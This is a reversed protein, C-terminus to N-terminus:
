SETAIRQREGLKYVYKLLSHKINDSLLSSMPGAKALLTLLRFVALSNGVEKETKSKDKVSKYMQLVMKEREGTIATEDLKEPLKYGAEEQITMRLELYNEAMQAYVQKNKILEHIFV